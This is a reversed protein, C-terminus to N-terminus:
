FYYLNNPLLVWYARCEAPTISSTLFVHGAFGAQEKGASMVPVVIHPLGLLADQHASPSGEGAQGCVSHELSATGM